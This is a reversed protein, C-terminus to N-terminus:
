NTLRPVLGPERGEVVSFLRKTALVSELPEPNHNWGPALPLGSEEADNSFIYLPDEPIIEPHFATAVIRPGFSFAEIPDAVSTALVQAGDPARVIHNSHFEFQYCARDYISGPMPIVRNWGRVPEGQEVEGELAHTIVQAGLCVGLVMPGSGGYRAIERVVHLEQELHPYLRRSEPDASMFGGTLILVDFSDPIKAGYFCEVVIANHLRRMFARARGPANECILIKLAKQPEV